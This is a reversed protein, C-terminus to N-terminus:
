KHNISPKTSTGCRGESYPNWGTDTFDFIPKGLALYLMLPFILSIWDYKMPIAQREAFVDRSM